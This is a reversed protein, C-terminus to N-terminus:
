QSHRIPADFYNLLQFPFSLQQQIDHLDISHRGKFDAATGKDRDGFGRMGTIYVELYKRYASLFFTSMARPANTSLKWFYGFLCADLGWVALLCVSL